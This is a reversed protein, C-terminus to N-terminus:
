SRTASKGAGVVHALLTNGGYLIRAIANKQHPRLKIEPNMGVFRIHSGDYERPRNSNFLENYLRVLQSRRGADQWIWDAFAQKMQEQKGQAIITENKNLVAKKKGDSDEVYDFIRVDRLNLTDELIRYANARETGYTSNAQVNNRDWTKHTIKWEATQKLFLVKINKQALLSTHLLEYMFQQIMEPPIWTTGLRVEIEAASLEEPQVKKLAEVNTQYRPEQEAALEAIKLKQRVNGSLYEDSPEWGVTSEQGSLPNKFIVGELNQIVEEISTQKMLSVMYPLDVCAKEALSVALAESATEVQTIPINPQITRKFFLDAKRKLRGNEDLHELSCLLPYASDERFATMNARSNLLGYRNTFTDYLKNLARQQEKIQEDTASGLQMDILARVSDRIAIMGKVREAATVSIAAPYMRSNERYYM